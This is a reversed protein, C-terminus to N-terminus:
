SPKRPAPNVLEPPVLHSWHGNLANKMAILSEEATACAEIQRALPLTEEYAVGRIVKRVRPVSNVNMSLESAGLGILLPTYFPSGAMEGCVTVPIGRRKGAEITIRVARVIAPHLTQFWDAVAENDRDVALFYQVLDNTGLCLFDVESAIDDIVFIAAPVEIMAGLRPKGFEIGKEELFHREHDLLAHAQRIESVDSVMPLVIDICRGRSAILISRLQTRFQKSFSLSLRIARLGL